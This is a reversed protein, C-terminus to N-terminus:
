SINERERKTAPPQLFNELMSKLLREMVENEVRSRELKKVLCDQERFRQIISLDKQKIVRRYRIYLATVAFLTIFVGGAMFIYFESVM